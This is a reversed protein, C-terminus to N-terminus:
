YTSKLHAARGFRANCRFDPDSPLADCRLKIVNLLSYLIVNRVLVM